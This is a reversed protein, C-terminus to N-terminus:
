ACSSQEAWLPSDGPEDRWTRKSSVHWVRDDDPCRYTRCEVTDAPQGEELRQRRAEAMAHTARADTVYRVKRRGARTLCQCKSQVRKRYGTVIRSRIFEELGPRRVGIWAPVNHHGPLVYLKTTGNAGQRGARGSTVMVAAGSPHTAELRAREDTHTVTVIWGHQTLAPEWRAVRERPTLRPVPPADPVTESM